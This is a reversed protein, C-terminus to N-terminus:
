MSVAEFRRQILRRHFRTLKNTFITLVNLDFTAHLCGKSSFRALNGYVKHLLKLMMALQSSSEELGQLLM